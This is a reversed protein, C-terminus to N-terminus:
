GTTPRAPQAAQQGGSSGSTSVVGDTTHAPRGAAGSAIVREDGRDSDLQKASASTRQQRGAPAMSAARAGGDGSNSSSKLTGTIDKSSAINGQEAGSSGGDGGVVLRRVDRNRERRASLGVRRGPGSTVSRRLLRGVSMPAGVLVMDSLNVSAAAGRGDRL